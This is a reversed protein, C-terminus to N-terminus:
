KLEGCLSCYQYDNITVTEKHEPVDTITDYFLLEPEHHIYHDIVTILGSNGHCKDYKYFDESTDYLGECESCYVKQVTIGEDWGDDYVPEQHTIAPITKTETHTAWIWKHSCSPTETPKETAGETNKTIPPDVAPAETQPETKDAVTTIEEQPETTKTTGSPTTKTSSPEISSTPKKSTDTQDSVPNVTKTQGALKETAPADTTAPKNDTTHNNVTKPSEEKQPTTEKIPITDNEKITVTTDLTDTSATVKDVQVLEMETAETNEIRETITSAIIEAETQLCTEPNASSGEHANQALVTTESDSEDNTNRNTSVFWIIGGALVLTMMICSIILSIKTKKSM